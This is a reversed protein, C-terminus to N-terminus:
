VSIGGLTTRFLTMVVPTYYFQELRTWRAWDKVLVLLRDVSIVNGEFYDKVLAELYSLIGTQTYFAESFVYYDDVLFEPLLPIVGNVTTVQDYTTNITGHHATTIKLTELMPIFADQESDLRITNDSEYPYVLHSMRLYRASDVSPQRIFYRSDIFRMKRNCTELLYSDRELLADWVTSQEFYRDQQMSLNQMYRIQKAEQSGCIKLLYKVVYADYYPQDQGPLVLTSYQKNFFLDFYRQVIENLFTKATLIDEHQTENVLPDLGDVLRDKHFFFTRQVKESILDLWDPHTQLLNSIEYEIYFVSQRNFTKREITTVRLVAQDGTDINAIFIDGVRPELCSPVFANGTVKSIQNISDYSGSLATQVRLELNKILNYQQYIESQGPDFDRLESHKGLVQSYYDITWPSGDVYALLSNINIADNDVVVGRYDEPEIRPLNMKVASSQKIRSAIPM